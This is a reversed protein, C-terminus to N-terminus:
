DIFRPLMFNNSPNTNSHDFISHSLLFQQYAFIFTAQNRLTSKKMKVVKNCWVFSLIFSSLFSIIISGTLFPHKISILIKVEELSRENHFSSEDDNTL